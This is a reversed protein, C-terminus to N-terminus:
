KESLTKVLGALTNKGSQLQSVVTKIPSQLLGIVEGILEEKSKLSELSKLQDDGVYVSQDIWAGKLLPKDSKKRFEAILKAPANGTESILITTNGALAGYLESYDKDVNEMAKKLLTNKVVKIQINGKFCARRLDSTTKANLGQTDALYVINNDSLVQTLEDIIISKQEKTM